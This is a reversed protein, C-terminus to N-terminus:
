AVVLGRRGAARKADRARSYKGVVEGNTLLLAGTETEIIRTMNEGTTMPKFANTTTMKAIIKKFPNM